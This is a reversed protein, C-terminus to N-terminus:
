AHHELLNEHLTANFHSLPATDIAAPAGDILKALSKQFHLIAEGEPDLAAIHEDVRDLLIAADTDNFSTCTYVDDMYWQVRFPKDRTTVAFSPAMYPQRGFKDVLATHIALLRDPILASDM